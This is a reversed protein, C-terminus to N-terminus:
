GRGSTEVVRNTFEDCDSSTIRTWNGITDAQREFEAPTLVRTQTVSRTIASGWAALQRHAPPAAVVIIRDAWSSDDRKVFDRLAAAVASPGALVYQGAAMTSHSELPLLPIDWAASWADLLADLGAVPTTQSRWLEEADIPLFGQQELWDPGFADDDAATIRPFVSQAGFSGPWEANADRLLLDLRDATTLQGRFSRWRADAEEGFRRKSPHRAEVFHLAALAAQYYSRVETAAIPTM